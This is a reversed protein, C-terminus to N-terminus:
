LGSRVVYSPTSPRASPPRGAARPSPSRRGSSPTSRPCDCRCRMGTLAGRISEGPNTITANFWNALRTRSPHAAAAGVPVARFVTPFESMMASLESLEFEVASRPCAAAGVGAPQGLGASDFRVHQIEHTLTQVTSIHWDERPQGGVTAAGERFQRGQVNLEPPVFVCTAGAAAPVPPVMSACTQTLAGTGPSMDRDLFIGHVNALLGPSAAELILELQRARGTHGTSVQRAPPMGARRARPSVERASEAAGFDVASGAIPAACVGAPVLACRARHLVGDPHPAPRAVPHAPRGLHDAVDEAHREAPDEPSSVRLPGAPRSGAAAGAAHTLEHVLLRQGHSSAPDFRGAAFVVQRGM